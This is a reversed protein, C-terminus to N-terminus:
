LSGIDHMLWTIHQVNLPNLLDGHYLSLEALANLYTHSHNPAHLQQSLTHPIDLIFLPLSHDHHVQVVTPELVNTDSHPKRHESPPKRPQTQLM